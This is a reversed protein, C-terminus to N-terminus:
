QWEPKQHELALTIPKKKRDKIREQEVMQIVAILLAPTLPPNGHENCVTALANKLYRSDILM